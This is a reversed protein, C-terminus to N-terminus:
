RGEREGSVPLINDTEGREWQESATHSQPALQMTYMFLCDAAQRDTVLGTNFEPTMDMSM